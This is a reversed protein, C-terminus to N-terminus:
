FDSRFLLWCSCLVKRAEGVKSGDVTEEDGFCMETQQLCVACNRDMKKTSYEQQDRFISWLMRLVMKAARPPDLGSLWSTKETTDMICDDLGADASKDEDKHRCGLWVFKIKEKEAKQGQIINEGDKGICFLPWTDVTSSICSGTMHCMKMKRGQAQFFCNKRKVVNNKFENWLWKM